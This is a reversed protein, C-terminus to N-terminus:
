EPFRLNPNGGIVALETAARFVSYNDARILAEEVTHRDNFMISTFYIAFENCPAIDTPEDFGIVTDVGCRVMREVINIPENSDVRAQSYGGLATECTLLMAFDMQNLDVDVLDDMTLSSTNSIQFSTQNGHTHIYFIDSRQMCKIMEDATYSTYYEEFVDEKDFNRFYNGVRYFYDDRNPYAAEDFALLSADCIQHLIWEDKLDSNNSYEKQEVNLGDSIGFLSTGACMCWDKSYSESSYPRLVFTGRSTETISWLQRPDGVYQEQVLAKGSRNEYGDQVALTWGSQVNFIQYYGNGRSLIGWRQMDRGHYGWLEM